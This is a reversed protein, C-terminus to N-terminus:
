THGQPVFTLVVMRSKNSTRGRHKLLENCPFHKSNLRGSKENKKGASEVSFSFCTLADREAKGAGGKKKVLYFM